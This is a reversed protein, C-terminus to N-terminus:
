KNDIIKKAETIAQRNTATPNKTLFEIMKMQQEKTKMNTAIALAADKSIGAQWLLQILKDITETIEIM